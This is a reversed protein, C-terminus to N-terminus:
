SRPVCKLVVQILFISVVEQVVVVVKKRIKPIVWRRLLDEAASWSFTYAAM